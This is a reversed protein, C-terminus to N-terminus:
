PPAIAGRVQIVSAALEHGKRAADVPDDGLLRGAIYAGNFADGAATTDVVSAAVVGPVLHSGHLGAVLCPHGGNKVVVEGVGRGQLREATRAPDIDGYLAHEDAFSPLAMDVYPLVSEVASRAQSPSSWGQPRYNSDFAVVSGAARANELVRHLRQRASLGIIQLTVLSLYVLDYGAFGDPHSEPANNSFLLRAASNERYYHFEREGATDTRILYLGLRKGSVHRILQTGIRERHLREVLQESYWDDGCLTLYDVEVEDRSAARKVYVATNLTDGAFSMDLGTDARHTLEIMAEGVSAVRIM